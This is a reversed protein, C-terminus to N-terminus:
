SGTFQCSSPAVGSAAAIRRSVSTYAASRPTCFKIRQCPRTSLAPLALRILRISFSLFFGIARWARGPSSLQGEVRCMHLYAAAAQRAIYGFAAVVMWKRYWEYQGYLARYLDFAVAGHEVEEVQHWIWLSRIAPDADGMLADYDGLVVMGALFTFTEYGAVFGVQRRLPDTRLAREFDARAGADFESVRPYREALFRNMAIFNYAHHAEQGILASVEERLEPDRLLPRVKRCVAGLFREFYPSHIALANVYIAFQPCSRSWVPSKGGAGGLDFRMPRVQIAEMPLASM